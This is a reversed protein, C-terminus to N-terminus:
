TVQLSDARLDIGLRCTSVLGDYLVAAEMRESDFVLNPPAQNVREVIRRTGTELDLTQTTGDRGAIILVRGDSRFTLSDCKPLEPSSIRNQLEGTATDWVGVEGARGRAAIRESGGFRAGREAVGSM